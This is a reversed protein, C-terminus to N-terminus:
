IAMVFFIIPKLNEVQVLTFIWFFSVSIYIELTEEPSPPVLVKNWWLNKTQAFLNCTGRGGSTKGELPPLYL